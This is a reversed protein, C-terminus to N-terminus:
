ISLKEFMDDADDAHHLDERLDTKEFTTRTIENPIEVPFPLGKRLEMQKFFLTIAQTTTLGLTSLIREVERKLKPEIRAQVSTTKPM